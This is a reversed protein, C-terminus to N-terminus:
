SVTDHQKKDWVERCNAVAVKQSGLPTQHATRDMINPNQAPSSFPLVISKIAGPDDKIIFDSIEIEYLLKNVLELFSASFYMNSNLAKYGTLFTAMKFIIGM